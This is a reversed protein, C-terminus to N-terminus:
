GAPPTPFLRNRVLERYAESSGLHIHFSPDDALCQLQQAIRHLTAQHRLQEALLEELAALLSQPAQPQARWIELALQNFPLDVELEDKAHTCVYAFEGATEAACTLIAATHQIVDNQRQNERQRRERKEERRLKGKNKGM